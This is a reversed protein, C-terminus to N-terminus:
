PLYNEFAAESTISAAPKGGYNLKNKALVVIVDANAPSIADQIPQIALNSPFTKERLIKNM